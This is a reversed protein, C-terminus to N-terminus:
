QSVAIFAEIKKVYELARKKEIFDLGHAVLACIALSIAFGSYHSLDPRGRFYFWLLLGIVFAGIEVWRYVKMKGLMQRVRPLEKEKLDGPNMDYAYVNRIRREDSLSYLSYGAYLFVLTFLILPISAGKYCASKQGFLFFLAVALALGALLMFILGGQKEATFYREIDTKTFM